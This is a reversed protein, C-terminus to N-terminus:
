WGGPVQSTSLNEVLKLFQYRPCLIENHWTREIRRPIFAM